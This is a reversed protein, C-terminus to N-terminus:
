LCGGVLLLCSETTFPMTISLICAGFRPETTYLSRHQSFGITDDTSFWIIFDFMPSFRHYHIRRVFLAPRFALDMLENLLHITNPKEKLVVSIFVPHSPRSFPIKTGYLIFIGIPGVSLVQSVCVTMHEASALRRGRLIAFHPPLTSSTQRVSDLNM